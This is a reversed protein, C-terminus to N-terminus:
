QDVIAALLATQYGSGTGVELVKERGTLRLAELSRAQTFPQSVTQGAGLPLASDEYARHRVGEPVFLHRPTEALAKLVALDRVGRARLTEVLRTRYGGYGDPPRGAGATGGESGAVGGPVM